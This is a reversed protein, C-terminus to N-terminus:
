KLQQLSLSKENVLDSHLTIKIRAAMGPRMINSDTKNLAVEADFIISPQNKNKRRYVNGLRSIEGSYQKDPSSDLVVMVKQGLSVKGADAELIKAKVILSDLSPVELVVRGMWITDGVAVKNGQFDSRYLVIGTKSTPVNMRKIGDQLEKVEAELQTVKNKDIALRVNNSKKLQKISLKKHEVENNEIEYNFYLKKSKISGDLNKSSSWKRYTKEARMKQEALKLKLKELSAKNTLKTNNLSKKATKLESVKILLRQSLQSSDFRVVVDGKKVKSGEMALYTIKYQWLGKILPPNITISENAALEGNAEIFLTKDKELTSNIHEDVAFIIFYFVIVVLITSIALLYQRKKDM